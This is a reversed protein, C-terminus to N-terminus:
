GDRSLAKRRDVWDVLQTAMVRGEEKRKCTEGEKRKNAKKDKGKLWAEEVADAWEGVEYSTRSLEVGVGETDLLLRLGHEEIFLPRSVYVFPTCADVCESVTGYGLKGLLVDAVATLDPMYVDRPAVYFDGPLEEGNETGWEKSVGCVVAIWSDNPLLRPVVEELNEAVMTINLSPPASHAFV